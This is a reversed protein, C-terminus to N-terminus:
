SVVGSSIRLSQPFCRLVEDLVVPTRVLIPLMRYTPLTQAVASRDTDPDAFSCLGCTGGRWMCVAVIDVNRDAPFVSRM